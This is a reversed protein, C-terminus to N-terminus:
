SASCIRNMGETLQPIFYSKHMNMARQNYVFPSNRISICEHFHKEGVLIM